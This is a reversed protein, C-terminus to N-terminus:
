VGLTLEKATKIVQTILEETMNCKEMAARFYKELIETVQAELDEMTAQSSLSESAGFHQVWKSIMDFYKTRLASKVPAADFEAKMLKVINEVGGFERVMAVLWRRESILSDEEASLYTLKDLSQVESEELQETRIDAVM